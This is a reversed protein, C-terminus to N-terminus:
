DKLFYLSCPLNKFDAETNRMSHRCNGYFILIGDSFAAMKRINPYIESRLLQCDAHLGLKLTNVIVTTKEKNKEKSKGIINHPIKKFFPFKLLLRLPNM